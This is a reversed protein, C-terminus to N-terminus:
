TSPRPEDETADVPARSRILKAPNGGVVSYPAVDKTVVSGAAIVSGDGIVIGPLIMARRGIWVDDGIIVRRVETVGQDIMPVDVSGFEHGTTFIVVEPAMMVNNGVVTPGTIHCRIGIGSRDGLSVMGIPFRAGQEININAGASSLLPRALLVRVKKFLRGGPATSAPLWCAVLRYTAGYLKKM